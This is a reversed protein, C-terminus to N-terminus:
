LVCKSGYLKILALTVSQPLYKTSQIHAMEMSNKYHNIQYASAFSKKETERYRNIPKETQTYGQGQRARKYLTTECVCRITGDM